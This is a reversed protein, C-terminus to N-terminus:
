ALPWSTTSSHWESDMLEEAPNANRVSECLLGPAMEFQAVHELVHRAGDGAVGLTTVVPPPTM